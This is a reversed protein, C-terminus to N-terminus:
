HPLYKVRGNLKYITTIANPNDLRLQLIIM